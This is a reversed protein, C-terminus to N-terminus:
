TAVDPAEAYLFVMVFGEDLGVTAAPGVAEPFTVKNM